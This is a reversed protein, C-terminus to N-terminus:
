AFCFFDYWFWEFKTESNHSNNLSTRIVGKTSFFMQLDTQDLKGTYAFYALNVSKHQKFKFILHISFDTVEIIIWLM